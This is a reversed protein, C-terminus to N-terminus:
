TTNRAQTKQKSPMLTHWSPLAASHVAEKTQIPLRRDRDMTLSDEGSHKCALKANSEQKSKLLTKECVILETVFVSEWSDRKTAFVSGLPRRSAIDSPHKRCM